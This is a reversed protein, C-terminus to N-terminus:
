HELRLPMPKSPISPLVRIGVGGAARLRRGISGLGFVGDDCGLSSHALDMASAVGPGWALSAAPLNSM